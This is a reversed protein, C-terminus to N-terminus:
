VRINAVIDGVKNECSEYKARANTEYSYMSQLNKLLTDMGRMDDWFAKKFAESGPGDWMSDLQAVNQKMSELESKMGQLHGAVSEIDTRLRDTNIKIHNM